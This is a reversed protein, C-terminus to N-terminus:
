PAGPGEASLRAVTADILQRSIHVAEPLEPLADIDFWRAEELEVGDAQAQGGAYELSFAMVLSNPFPWPQSGFYRPNVADIGTEERVERIVAHELTEGPEVFGAIVTYRGPVYGAKRTLLVQRGREVLAMIVPNIRPYYVQGCAPCERARDFAHPVTARGCSGCYRHTREWEILQRARGAVSALIDDAELIFARMGMLDTDEPLPQEESLQVALCHREDLMGLYHSDESRVGLQEPMM